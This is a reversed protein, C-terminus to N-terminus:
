YKSGVIEEYHEIFYLIEEASFINKEDYAVSYNNKRSAEIEEGDISITDIDIQGYSGRSLTMCDNKNKFVLLDGGLTKYNLM